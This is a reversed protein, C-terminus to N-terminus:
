LINFLSFVYPFSFVKNKVFGKKNSYLYAQEAAPLIIDYLIVAFLFTRSPSSLFILKVM